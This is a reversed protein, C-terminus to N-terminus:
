RGPMTSYAEVDARTVPGSGSLGAAVAALDFGQERALRRAAPTARVVSKAARPTSRAKGGGRRTVKGAAAGHRALVRENAAVVDPLPDSASGVQAVVYGTPVVSKVNALVRRVVGTVPAEVEFSAKETTMEVLPAGKRISDGEKCFWATITVETVNASLKPVRVSRIM